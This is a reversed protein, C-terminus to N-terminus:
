WQEIAAKQGVRWGQEQLHRVIAEEAILAAICALYPILEGYIRTENIIGYIFMVGCWAPLVWLWVRLVPDKLYSRFIYILPVLYCGAGLIQPWAPPWALLVANAEYHRIWEFHNHVFRREVYVRWLMWLILLPFWVAFSRWAFASKWNMRKGKLGQALVFFLLLFLTTERNVTAIVFVLSFLASSKQFYILYLGASFFALGPLDYFFRFDAWLHFIYSCTCMLLFLPYVYPLLLQRASSAKYLRTAVWGAFAVCATNLFAQLLSEPTLTSRFVPVNVSLFEALHQLFVTQHAWRLPFMMLMRYQFPTREKGQEYKLLHLYAPVRSQYYWAFQITAMAYLLLTVIKRQGSRMISSAELRSVTM